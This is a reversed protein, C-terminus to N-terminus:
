GECRARKEEERVLSAHREHLAAALYVLFRAVAEPM